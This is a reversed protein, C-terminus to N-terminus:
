IACFSISVVQLSCMGHVVRFLDPVQQQLAHDSAPQNFGYAFLALLIERSQLSKFVTKDDYAATAISKCRLLFVVVSLYGHRCALHLPTSGDSTKDNVSAGLEVLRAVVNIKTKFKGYRSAM